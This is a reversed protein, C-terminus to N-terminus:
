ALTVRSLQLYERGAKSTKIESFATVKVKARPELKSLFKVRPEPEVFWESKVFDSETKTLRSGGPTLTEFELRHTFFGRAGTPLIFSVALTYAMPQHHIGDREFGYKFQNPVITGIAEVVEITFEKRQERTILNLNSM